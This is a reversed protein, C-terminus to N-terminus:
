SIMDYLNGISFRCAFGFTPQKYSVCICFTDIFNIVVCSTNVMKKKFTPDDLKECLEEVGQVTNIPENLLEEFEDDDQPARAAFLTRLMNGHLAQTDIIQQLKRLVAV